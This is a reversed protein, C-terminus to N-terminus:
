VKKPKEPLAGKKGAIAAGMSLTFAVRRAAELTLEGQEGETPAMPPAEVDVTEKFGYLVKGLWIQATVNPPLEWKGNDGSGKVGTASQFTAAMLRLKGKVFGQKIEEPFCKRLTVPSIPKGTKPNIIAQVIEDEPIKYSAGLSVIARQDATPTFAGSGPPRGAKRKEPAAEPKRQKKRASSTTSPKKAKPM